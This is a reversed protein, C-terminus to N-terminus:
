RGEERKRRYGGNSCRQKHRKVTGVKEMDRRLKSTGRGVNRYRKNITIGRRDMGHTSRTSDNDIKDWLHDDKGQKYESKNEFTISDMVKDLYESIYKM